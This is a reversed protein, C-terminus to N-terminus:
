YSPGIWSEFWKGKLQSGFASVVAFGPGLQCSKQMFHSKLSEKGSLPTASFSVDGLAATTTHTSVVLGICLKQRQNFQCRSNRSLFRFWVNWM